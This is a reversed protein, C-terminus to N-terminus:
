RTKMNVIIAIVPVTMETSLSKGPGDKCGFFSYPRNLNHLSLPVFSFSLSKLLRGSCEGGVLPGLHSGSIFHRAEFFAVATMHSSPTPPLTPSTHCTSPLMRMCKPLGYQNAKIYLVSFLRQFIFQMVLYRYYNVITYYAYATHCQTVVLFLLM